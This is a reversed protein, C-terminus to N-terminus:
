KKAYYKQMPQFYYSKWGDAYKQGDGAPIKTQQLTLMCGETVETFIVRVMSDDAGEPFELTRWSMVCYKGDVVEKIKGTIYGDWASFDSGVLNQITAVAGTFVTHKESSLWDHYADSPSIPLVTTLELQDM